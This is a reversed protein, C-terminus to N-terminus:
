ELRRARANNARVAFVGVVGAPVVLLLTLPGLLLTFVLVITLVVALIIQNVRRRRKLETVGLRRAQARVQRDLLVDSVKTGPARNRLDDRFRTPTPDFASM